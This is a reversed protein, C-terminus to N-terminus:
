SQFVGVFPMKEAQASSTKRGRIKRIQVFTEAQASLPSITFIGM